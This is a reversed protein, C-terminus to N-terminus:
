ATPNELKKTFTINGTKIQITENHSEDAGDDENPDHFGQSLLYLRETTHFKKRTKDKEQQNNINAQIDHEARRMYFRIRFVVQVVDYIRRLIIDIFKETRKRIHVFHEGTRPRVYAWEM